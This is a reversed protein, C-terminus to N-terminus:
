NIIKSMNPYPGFHEICNRGLVKGLNITKEISWCSSLGYLIGAAFSDGCGYSDKLVNQNNIASYKGGPISFGGNEGETKIILKHKHSLDSLSFYEHPDLNSGILGDLIINSENITSIGVRPTSCLVKAKRAKKFLNIDGATIFIGDMEKLLHWDLDDKYSPSLREGIITISRERNNDILSFGKRTPKDRWAVHLKLGIEDFFRVSERGYYDTGLSTFFHVENNTLEHLTKAILAGGGAPYELSIDSHSIIGPKPLSDVKLFNIWEIHGIVAFKLNGKKYTKNESFYNKYNNM